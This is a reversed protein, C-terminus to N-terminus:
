GLFSQRSDRISVLESLFSSARLQTDAISRNYHLYVIYNTSGSLINDINTQYRDACFLINSGMPSKCRALHVCYSAIQSILKSEHSVCSRAFNISRRCLEDFVPLCQCIHPLLYCHTANPLNWISRVGRRWATCINSINIVRLSRSYNVDTTVPAIRVFYDINLM